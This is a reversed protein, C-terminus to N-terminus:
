APAPGGPFRVSARESPSLPPPPPTAYLIQTSRLDPAEEITVYQSRPKGISEPTNIRMTEHIAPPTVLRPSSSSPLSGSQSSSGLPSHTQMFSPEDPTDDDWSVDDSDRHRSFEVLRTGEDPLAGNAALPSRPGIRKPPDTAAHIPPRIDPSYRDLGFAAPSTATRAHGPVFARSDFDSPRGDLSGNRVHTSPVSLSESTASGAFMNPLSRNEGPSPLADAQGVMLWFDKANSRGPAFSMSTLLSFGQQSLSSLIAMVNTMSDERFTDDSFIGWGKLKFEYGNTGVKRESVVGRPWAKRVAHLISPTSSLPPSVVRIVTGSVFSIAFPVHQRPSPVGPFTTTTPEMSVVPRSFVMSLIDGDEKGYDILSLFHFGHALIVSMVEIVMAESSVTKPTSWPKGLLYLKAQQLQPESEEKFQRLVDRSELVSRLLNVTTHPFNTMRILNSGSFALLAFASPVPASRQFERRPVFNSGAPSTPMPPAPM